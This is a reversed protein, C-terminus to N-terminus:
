LRLCYNSCFKLAEEVNDHFKSLLEHGHNTTQLLIKAYKLRFARVDLSSISECHTGHLRNRLFMAAMVGCDTGNQQQSCNPEKIIRYQKPIFGAVALNDVLKKMLSEYFVDTYGILSDFTTIVSKAPDVEALIWHARGIM